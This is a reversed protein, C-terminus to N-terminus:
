KKVEKLYIMKLMDLHKQFITERSPYLRIKLYGDATIMVRIGYNNDDIIKELLIKSM